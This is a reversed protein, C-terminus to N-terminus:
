LNGFEICIDANRALNMNHTVILLGMNQRKVLQHLLSFVAQSRSPDLNGTPEDALVLKPRTILARAIAVRQQQGGSLEAPRHLTRDSLEMAELMQAADAMADAKRTGQIILPMAVNEQASFDPLLHHYQYVFGLKDRRLATRARDSAGTADQGDIAIEGADPTELLGAIHLLTSKGCGSPGVLAVSQGAQVELDVTRLVEFEVGGQRFKKSIGKLSLM